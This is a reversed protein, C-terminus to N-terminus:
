WITVRQEPPLHMADGPQTGFTDHFAGQNRVSGNARFEGPSHVGAKVQEILREERWKTRWIQAYGYFFRQEGSLGDIVPAEKGGLSLRWAKWAIALGANDAINEGLTQRGNLRYGPVPEFRGYQEVLMDALATFRTRDEASWWNRLNGQADYQSGQDDFGHSIEHGIVAGIAGYNVADDAKPDFFPPQLIAAPFVIENMSPNYYANVTQPTMGWEDRDIPRGLKGADHDYDFERARMVNGVLDDRRVVISAYDIWRKPYGVKLAFAALKARAERKTEPGMWSLGDISSQYAAMLNAVLQEMRAKSSPPFHRAVYLQGVAEGLSEQVLSAGREWRPLNQPTGRLVTGAFGFREDVFAKGLFPAWASLLRLKAYAQWDALPATEVLRGLAAFFSPQSVIVDPTRGALRAEALFAPWDLGAAVDPLAAVDTRNYRKIPDRNEVRTWQGEALATELALVAAAKAETDREGALALLRSLHALYEARIKQFKADDKQLYFDRDPLGLGSQYLIPVYRTSNRADQGIYMAVPGTVGLRMFRAFLPALARRDALADIRALEAALPKAGLKELAAEDMFSAYFDGVQRALPDTGSRAATDEILTRLQATTDDALKEFSGVRSRDAPMLTAKIWAGNAHRFFDDQARVSADWSQRDIGAAGFDSAAPAGGALGLTLCACLLRLPPHDHSM